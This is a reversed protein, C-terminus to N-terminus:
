QTIDLLLSFFPMRRARHNMSMLCIFVSILGLACIKKM